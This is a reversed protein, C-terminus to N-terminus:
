CATPRTTSLLRSGSVTNLISGVAANWGYISVKTAIPGVFYCHLLLKRSFSHLTFKVQAVSTM